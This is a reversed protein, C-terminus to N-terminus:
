EVPGEPNPMRKAKWTKICQDLWRSAMNSMTRGEIAAIEKLTDRQDPTLRIGITVYRAAM